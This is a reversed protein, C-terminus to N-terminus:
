KRPVNAFLVDFLELFTSQFFHGRNEFVKFKTNPIEQKIFEANKFDCIMDDKSHWVYIEGCINELDKLKSISFTFTGTDETDNEKQFDNSVIPAVLHLQKIKKPFNNELLYKILFITGLSYGILIIEKDNLKELYKQFIIKWIEYDANDCMPMKPIIFEYKDELSWQLWDKWNKDSWVVDINKNRFYELAQERDRFTNGGRIVIIQEKM